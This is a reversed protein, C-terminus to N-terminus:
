VSINIFIYPLFDM